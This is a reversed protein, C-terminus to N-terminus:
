LLKGGPLPKCGYSITLGVVNGEMVEKMGMGAIICFTESKFVAVQQHAPADGNVSAILILVFKM